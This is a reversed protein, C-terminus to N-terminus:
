NRIQPVESNNKCIHIDSKEGYNSNVPKLLLPYNANNPFSSKRNYVFSQPVTFGCINALRCQCDKNMMDGLQSGRMPTIYSKSLEKEHLDIFQAAKDNTCIIVQKKNEDAIQQLIPFCDNIDYLHFIQKRKLYRSKTIYLRDANGILLLTIDIDAEGLSRILGLTNNFSDGLIVASYLHRKM